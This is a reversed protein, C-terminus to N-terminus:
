DLNDGIMKYHEPKLEGILWYLMLSLYQSTTHRDRLFVSHKCVEEILEKEIDIIDQRCQDTNSYNKWKIFVKQIIGENM